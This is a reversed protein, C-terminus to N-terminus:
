VKRKERRSISMFGLLGSLLMWMSPPLPVSALQHTAQLEVTTGTYVLELMWAPYDPLLIQDFTGTLSAGEFITWSYYDSSLADLTSFSLQDLDLDGGITIDMLSTVWSSDTIDLYGSDLDFSVTGLDELVVNGTVTMRTGDEFLIDGNATRNISYEEPTGVNFTHAFYTEGVNTLNGNLVREGGGNIVLTDHNELDGNISGGSYEFNNNNIVTPATLTGGNLDYYSNAMGSASVRVHGSATLTGGNQEFIANQTTSGPEAPITGVELQNAVSITGADFVYVGTGTKRGIHLNVVNHIGGTQHLYADGFFGVYENNATLTGSSFNYEGYGGTASGLTFEDSMISGGTQNLVGSGTGGVWIGVNSNLSATGSINYVSSSGTQDSMLFYTYNANGASHNIEANGDTGIVGLNANLDLGSNLNLVMSGTGSNNMFIESLIDASNVAGSYNIVVDNASDAFFNASDGAAPVSGTFWCTGNGWDDPSTCIWDSSYAPSTFILSTAFCLGAVSGRKNKILKLKDMKGTM